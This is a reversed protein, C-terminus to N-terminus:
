ADRHMSRDTCTFRVEANLEREIMRKRLKGYPECLAAREMGYSIRECHREGDVLACVILVLELM